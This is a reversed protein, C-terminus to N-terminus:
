RMLLKNRYSKQMKIFDWNLSFLVLQLVSIFVVKFTVTLFFFLRLISLGICTQLPFQKIIIKSFIISNQLCLRTDSRLRHPVDPEWIICMQAPTAM